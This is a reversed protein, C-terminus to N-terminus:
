QEARQRASRQVGFLQQVIAVFTLKPEKWYDELAPENPYNEYTPPRPQPEDFFETQASRKNIDFVPSRNVIAALVRRLREISKEAEATREAAEEKLAQRAEIEKRKRAREWYSM